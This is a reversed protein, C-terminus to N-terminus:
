LYESLADAHASVEHHASPFFGAATALAGGRKGVGEFREDARHIEIAIEDGHAADHEGFGALQEFFELDIRRICIWLAPKLFDQLGNGRVARGVRDDVLGTGFMLLAEDGADDPVAAFKAFSLSPAFFFCLSGRGAVREFALKPLQREILWIGIGSFTQIVQWCSGRVALM